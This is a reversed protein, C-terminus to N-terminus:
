LWEPSGRIWMSSKTARFNEKPNGQFIPCVHPPTCGTLCSRYNGLNMNSRLIRDRELPPNTAMGNTPVYLHKGSERHHRPFDLRENSRNRSGKQVAALTSRCIHLHSNKQVIKCLKLFPFLDICFFQVIKQDMVDWFILVYNAKQLMIYFSSWNVQVRKCSLILVWVLSQRELLLALSRFYTVHKDGEGGVKYLRGSRSKLKTNEEDTGWSGINKVGRGVKFIRGSLTGRDRQWAGEASESETRAAQHSSLLSLRLLRMEGCKVVVEFAGFRRPVLNDPHQCVITISCLM